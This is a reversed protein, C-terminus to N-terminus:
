PLAVAAGTARAAGAPGLGPYLARYIAYTALVRQVFLRTEPYPITTAGGSTADWRGSRLWAKVPAMGANYAALAPPVRGGFARVLYGLYWSGVAVNYGPDRLMAAHYAGGEARQTAVWAGTPPTVQMLGVAGADSVAGPRFRSEVRMVSVVLRPDLGGAAAGQLVASRYPVPFASYAAARGAWFLLVVALLVLATRVALRPHFRWVRIRV